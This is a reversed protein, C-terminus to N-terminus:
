APLPVLHRRGSLVITRPIRTILLALAITTNDTQETCLDAGSHSPITVTVSSALYSRPRVSLLSMQLSKDYKCYRIRRSCLWVTLRLNSTITTTATDGGLRTACSHIKQCNQCGKLIRSPCQVGGWGGGGGGLVCM